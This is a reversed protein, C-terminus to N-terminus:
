KGFYNWKMSATMFKSVCKTNSKNFELAHLRWVNSYLDNKKFVYFEFQNSIQESLFNLNRILHFLIEKKISHLILKSYLLDFVNPLFFFYGVFSLHFYPKTLVSFIISLLCKGKQSFFFVQFFIFIFFLLSSFSFSNRHYKKKM